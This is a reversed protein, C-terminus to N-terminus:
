AHLFNCCVAHLVDNTGTSLGQMSQSQETRVSHSAASCVTKRSITTALNSYAALAQHGPKV